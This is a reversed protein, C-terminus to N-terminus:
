NSVGFLTLTTSTNDAILSFEALDRGVRAPCYQFALTISAGPFVVFPFSPLQASIAQSSSSSFSANTLTSESNGVNACTLTAAACQGVTVVGFDIIEPECRLTSSTCAGSPCAECLGNVCMENTPCDSDAACAAGAVCVGNDCIEGTPCVGNAGCSNTQVTCVGNQCSEGRACESDSTCVNQALCAGNVCVQGSACPNTNDCANTQVSCIGSSCSEGRACDSDTTCVNQAVCVGNVCSEGPDCAGSANCSNGQVTCIGNQCSEGRACDGDSACESDQVCVGNVCSEGPACAGTASCSNAQVTCVGNQCSEGRACEADSACLNEDVCIGNVCSEGASCAGSSNCTVSGTSCVGNDCRQGTACDSDTSCVPTNPASCTGTAADCAEGTPCDSDVTCAGQCGGNQCIEGAACEGNAGCPANVAAYSSFHALTGSVERKARDYASGTVPIKSVGDIQALIARETAESATVRLTVPAAFQLGSPGLEYVASRLGSVASGRIVEITFETEGSVAGAAVTLEAKGDASKLAGGATSITTVTRELVVQEESCALTLLLPATLALQRKM